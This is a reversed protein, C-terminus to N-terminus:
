ASLVYCVFVCRLSEVLRNSVDGNLLMGCLRGDNSCRCSRAFTLGCMCSWWPGCIGCLIEYSGLCGNDCTSFQATEDGSFWSGNKIILLLLYYFYLWALCCLLGFLVVLVIFGFADNNMTAISTQLTEATGRRVFSQPLPM